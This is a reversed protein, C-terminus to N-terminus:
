QYEEAVVMEEDAKAEEKHDKKVEKTNYGRGKVMKLKLALYTQRLDVYYIRGAQLEFAIFNEDLSSTPYIERDECSLVVDIVPFNGGPNGFVAM